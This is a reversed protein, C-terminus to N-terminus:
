TVKRNVNSFGVGLCSLLITPERVVVEKFDGDYAGDEVDEDGRLNRNEMEDGDGEESSNSREDAESQGSGDDGGSGSGSADSSEDVADDERNAADLGGGSDMSIRQLIFVCMRRSLFLIAVVVVVVM